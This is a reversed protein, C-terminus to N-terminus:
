NHGIKEGIAKADYGQQRLIEVGQLLEMPKHKRRAVNEVLSMILAQEESANIIMAPIMQQGCAQFAELRGQGCVLDYLKGDTQKGRRPTVTIPRKIGVQTMNHVIGDFIKTNRVRPNLVHISELPILHVVDQEYEKM